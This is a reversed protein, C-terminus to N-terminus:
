AISKTTLIIYKLRDSHQSRVRSIDADFGTSNGNWTGSVTPAKTGEQNGVPSQDSRRQHMELGSQQKLPESFAHKSRYLYLHSLILSCLIVINESLAIQGM